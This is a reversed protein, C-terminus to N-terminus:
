QAAWMNVAHSLAVWRGTRDKGPTASSLCAAHSVLERSARSRALGAKGHPGRERGSRGGLIMPAADAGVSARLLAVALSLVLRPLWVATPPRRARGICSSVPPRRAHWHPPKRDRTIGLTLTSSSSQRPPSRGSPRASECFASTPIEAVDPLPPRDCDGMRLREDVGGSVIAKSPAVDRVARDPQRSTARTARRPACSRIGRSLLCVSSSVDPRQRAIEAEARGLSAPFVTWPPRTRRTVKRAFWTAVQM